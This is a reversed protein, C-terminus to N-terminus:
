TFTDEFLSNAWDFMDIYNEANPTKAEGFSAEVRKMSKTAADYQYTATLWSATKNTIPSYCASMTVPSQNPAQGNLARVIADACVKAQANAM